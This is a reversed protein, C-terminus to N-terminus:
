SAPRRCEPPASARAPRGGAAAHRAPRDCARRRLGRRLPGPDVHLLDAGDDARAGVVARDLRGHRRDLRMRLELQLQDADGRRQEVAVSLHHVQDLAVAEADVLLQVDQDLALRRGGHDLRGAHAQDLQRRHEVPQAGVHHDRDAVPELGHGGRERGGVHVDRHRVRHAALDGSRDVLADAVGDGLEGVDVERRAALRGVPDDPEALRGVRHEPDAARADVQDRLNEVSSRLPRSAWMKSRPTPTGSSRDFGNTITLWCGTVVSYPSPSRCIVAVSDATRLHPSAAITSHGLASAPDSSM